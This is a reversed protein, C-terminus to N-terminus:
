IHSAWKAYIIPLIDITPLKFWEGEVLIPFSYLYTQPQVRWVLLLRLGEAETTVQVTTRILPSMLTFVPSTAADPYEFNEIRGNTYISLRDDVAM